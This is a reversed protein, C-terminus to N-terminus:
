FPATAGSWHIVGWTSGKGSLHCAMDGIPAHWPSSTADRTRVQRSWSNRDGHDTWTQARFPSRMTPCYPTKLSRSISEAYDLAQLVRDDDPGGWYTAM